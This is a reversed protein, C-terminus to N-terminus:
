MYLQQSLFRTLHCQVDLSHRRLGHMYIDIYDDIAKRAALLPKVLGLAAFFCSLPGGQRPGPQPWKYTLSM